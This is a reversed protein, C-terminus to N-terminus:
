SAIAVPRRAPTMRLALRGGHSSPTYGMEVEVTEGGTQMQRQAVQIEKSGIQLGVLVLISECALQPDASLVEPVERTRLAAYGELELPRSWALLQPATRAARVEIYIDGLGDAAASAVLDSFWAAATDRLLTHPPSDHSPPPQTIM